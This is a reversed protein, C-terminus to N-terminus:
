RCGCVIANQTVFMEFFTVPTCVLAVLGVCPWKLAFSVKSMGLVLQYPVDAYPPHRMAPVRAHQKSRLILKQENQRM